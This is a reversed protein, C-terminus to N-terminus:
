EPLALLDYVWVEGLDSICLPFWREGGRWLAILYGDDTFWAPWSVMSGIDVHCDGYLAVFDKYSWVGWLNNRDFRIPEIGEAAVCERNTNYAISDTSGDFYGIECLVGGDAHTVDMRIRNYPVAGSRLDFFYHSNVAVFCFGAALVVAALLVAGVILLIKRVKKM